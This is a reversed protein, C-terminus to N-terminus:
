FDRDSTLLALNRVLPQQTQLLFAAEKINRGRFIEMYGTNYLDLSNSGICRWLIDDFKSHPLYKENKMSYILLM